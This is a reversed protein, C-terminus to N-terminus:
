QDWTLQIDLGRQPPASADPRDAQRVQQDGLHGFSFAHGDRVVVTV